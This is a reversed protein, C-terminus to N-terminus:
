LFTPLKYKATPLEIVRGGVASHLSGVGKFNSRSVLSSSAVEVKALDREVM